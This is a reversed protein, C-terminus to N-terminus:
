VAEGRVVTEEQKQVAVFQDGGGAVSSSRGRVLPVEYIGSDLLTALTSQEAILLSRRVQEPIHDRVIDEISLTRDGSNDEGAHM